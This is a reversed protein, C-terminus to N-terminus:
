EQLRVIQAILNDRLLVLFCDFARTCFQLSGDIVVRLVQLGNVGRELVRDEVHSSLEVLASPRRRRVAVAAILLILLSKRADLENSYCYYNMQTIAETTRRRWALM